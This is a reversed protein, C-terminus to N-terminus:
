KDFQYGQLFSYKEIVSQVQQKNNESWFVNDRSSKQPNKIISSCDELYTDSVEVGLFDPLKQLVMKPNEVFDEHRIQLVHDPKMREIIYQNARCLDAYFQIAQSLDPHDKKVITAINDFPNRVVHIIKMPVKFRHYLVDLLQPEQALLQTSGGGKKDGIVTINVNKGQHQNKVAYEYEGWQNNVSAMIESNMLIMQYIESATIEKDTALLNFVNLEHSLCINPHADLLSGLVSHGSRPYGIFFCYNTLQLLKKELGDLPEHKLQLKLKFLEENSAAIVPIELEVRQQYSLLEIGKKVLVKITDSSLHFLPTYDM